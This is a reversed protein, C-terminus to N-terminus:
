VCVENTVEDDRTEVDVDVEVDEEDQEMKVSEEQVIQHSEEVATEEKKDAVQPTEETTAASPKTQSEEINSSQLCPAEEIVELPQTDEEVDTNIKEETKDNTDTPEPTENKNANLDIEEDQQQQQNSITETSEPPATKVEEESPREAQINNLLYLEITRKSM